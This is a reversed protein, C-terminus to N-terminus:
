ENKMYENKYENKLPKNYSIVDSAFEEDDVKVRLKRKISMGKKKSEFGLRPVLTEVNEESSWFSPFKREHIVNRTMKSCISPFTIRSYDRKQLKPSVNSLKENDFKSMFFTVIRILHTQSFWSILPIKTTAYNVRSDTQWSRQLFRPNM